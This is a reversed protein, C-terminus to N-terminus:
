SHSNKRQMPAAKAVRRNKKLLPRVEKREDGAASTSTTCLPSGQGDVLLHTTTGKGKYGYEIEEGGGKGASFFGDVSLRGWDIMKAVDAIEWLGILLHELCGNEKWCGLWRHSASRSAWQKGTPVDCWRSGTTLVWLITNVVARWPTHPKGKERKLPEPFFGKILRWQNDTLGIFRAM